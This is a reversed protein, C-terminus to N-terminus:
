ASFSRSSRRAALRPASTQASRGGTVRHASDHRSIKHRGRIPHPLCPVCHRLPVPDRAFHVGVSHGAQDREVLCACVLSRTSHTCSALRTRTRERAPRHCQWGAFASRAQQRRGACRSSRGVPAGNQPAPAAGVQRDRGEALSWRVEVDGPEATVPVGSAFQRQCRKMVSWLM